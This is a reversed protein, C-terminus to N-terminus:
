LFGWQQEPGGAILTDFFNGPDYGRTAVCCFQEPSTRKPDSASMAADGVLTRKVGLLPCENLSNPHRSKALLPCRANGRILESIEAPTRNGAM